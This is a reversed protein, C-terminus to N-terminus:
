GQKERYWKWLEPGYLEEMVAEFIYYVYREERYENEGDTEMHDILKKAAEVFPLQGGDIIWSEKLKPRSM